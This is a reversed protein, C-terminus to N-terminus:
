FLFLLVFSPARESLGFALKCGLNNYHVSRPNEPLVDKAACISCVSARQKHLDMETFFFFFFSFVVYTKRVGGHGPLLRNGYIFVKNSNSASFCKMKLFPRDNISITWWALIDCLLSCTFM